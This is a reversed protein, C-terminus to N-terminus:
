GAEPEGRLYLVPRELPPLLLESPGGGPRDILMHWLKPDTSGAPHSLGGTGIRTPGDVGNAFLFNPTREFVFLSAGARGKANGGHGFLRVHDCDRVVLMPDNGEYKTGFFSVHRAGRLESTVQQVSFQHFSLPGRAGDVLLRASRDRFNYFLGAGHGTIVVPAPDVKDNGHIEVARYISRGGCRWLLSQAGPVKPPTYLGLFALVTDAGAADATRVLPAPQAPDSFAESPAPVLLSMTQGVGILNTAPKLDLPRTLLYCGRPLFVIEHSDVARQLAATDDTRGDGAANYPPAKVNAAGPTEFGPFPSAWVHRAQLDPPPAQDPELSRLGDPLIQGDRYVPYRYTRAQNVRPTSPVAFRRIHLWGGPNGDLAAQPQGPDDLVRTAGRVYVNDLFVGRDSRVVAREPQDLAPGSFEVVSDVMTLEGHNAALNRGVQILPGTCRDAVVKLGVAVLTQRSTSRIAAETQGDLTFGTIVPTPQTGSLYGTFDLGIRGGHVTVNASSGGSGIGGQLGTHGHTADITCDQIASGEAAQHRVAIAGPNGEGIVVDLNVLLQNMGINPQEVDPPLGDTVRDATTPNQYGRSWFRVFVKPKEPDGFGASHPALLLRPRRDGAQSGVLMVPFRNGGFVRGSVRRYLQQTCELTDSVRYTGPPFFSAMQHDRAFLIADELARTSDRAGTPDAHFPAATVDVYGLAALRDNGLGDPVDLELLDPFPQRITPHAYRLYLDPDRQPAGAALLIAALALLLPRGAPRHTM